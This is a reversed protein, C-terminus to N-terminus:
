QQSIVSLQYSSAGNEARLVVFYLGAPLGELNLRTEQKGAAIQQNALVQGSLNTLQIQWSTNINKVQITTYDRAPNPMLAAELVPQDPANVSVPPLFRLIHLGNQMDGCLINGSPLWPYNGWNGYYTNYITNQPHTDYHGVLVPDIPNSIDYVLLGDEYQSNFLYNDKIYVNHPIPKRTSGTLFSDLVAGVPEIVGINMKQLDVVRVPKGDPIEETYYAHTGATNLWSNHNYGDTSTQAILKPQQPNTKFDFVFYGEFGSSAYLTDNRVYSDHVYGGPLDVSALVTPQDPNQSIDLVLIGQSQASSGNLYIRGSVTDLTITHSRLFFENSYYTRIITDPAQSMDFIMLGEETQDSVAYIRNKYSKFERWLTTQKGAFKGILEPQTPNTVDFFLVHLAGGLVAYEHGNLAMGWCGSYQLSLSPALPLTDDDWRGLLTMNLPSQAKVALLYIFFACFLAIKKM